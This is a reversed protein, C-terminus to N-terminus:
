PNSTETTLSELAITFRHRAGAGPINPASWRALTSWPGGDTSMASTLTSSRQSTRDAQISRASQTEPLLDQFEGSKPLVGLLRAGAALGELYRMVLPSYGGTRAPNDIDPPTVVFYRSRAVFRGLDKPDTFEGGVTTYRYELGREKCYRLLANHLAEHRRGMWYAFVDREGDGPRFVDTDVGFPMWEFRGRPFRRKLEDCGERFAVFCPNLRQAVALRGIKTLAPRWADVVFASRRITPKTASLAWLPLEPRASSQMWFVTDSRRLNRIAARWEHRRDWRIPPPAILQADPNSALPGLLPPGLTSWNIWPQLEDNSLAALRTADVDDRQRAQGHGVVNPQYGVVHELGAGLRPGADSGRYTEAAM